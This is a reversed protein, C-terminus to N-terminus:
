LLVVSPPTKPQFENRRNTSAALSSRVDPHRKPSQFLEAGGLGWVDAETPVRFHHDKLVVIVSGGAAKFQAATPWTRLDQM